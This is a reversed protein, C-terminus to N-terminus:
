RAMSEFLRGYSTPSDFSVSAALCLCAVTGVLSARMLTTPALTAALVVHATAYVICAAGCTRTTALVVRGRGGATSAISLRGKATIAVCTITAATAGLVGGALMAFRAIGIASAPGAPRFRDATVIACGAVAALACALVTRHVRVGPGVHNYVAALYYGVVGVAVGLSTEAPAWPQRFGAAQVGIAITGIGVGCLGVGLQLTRDSAWSGVYVGWLLGIASCAIQRVGQGHHVPHVLGPSDAPMGPVRRLREAVVTGVRDAWATRRSHWLILPGVSEWVMSRRRFLLYTASVVGVWALLVLGADISAPTVTPPHAIVM